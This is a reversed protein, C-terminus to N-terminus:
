DRAEQLLIKIRAWMLKDFEEFLIKNHKEAYIKDCEKMINWNIRLGKELGSATPELATIIKWNGLEERTLIKEYKRYDWINKGKLKYKFQILQGYMWKMNEIGEAKDGKCYKMPAYIFDTRLYLLMKVLEDTSLEEVEPMEISMAKIDALTGDDKLIIMKSFFHKPKLTNPDFRFYDVHVLEKTLCFWYIDKKDLEYYGGIIFGSISKAIDPLENKIEHECEKKHLLLIDFDSYPTFDGTALSGVLAIGFFREDDV